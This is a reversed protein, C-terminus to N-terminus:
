FLGMRRLISKTNKEAKSHIKATLESEETMRQILVSINPVQLNSFM